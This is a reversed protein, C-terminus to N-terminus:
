GGHRGCPNRAGIGDRAEAVAVARGQVEEGQGDAPIRGLRLGRHGDHEGVGASGVVARRRDPGVPNTVLQGSPDIDLASGPALLNAEIGGDLGEPELV